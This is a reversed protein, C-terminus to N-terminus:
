DNQEGLKEVYEVAGRTILANLLLPISVGMFVLILSTIPTLLLFIPSISIVVLLLTILYYKGSLLFSLKFVQIFKLRPFVRVVVLSYMTMAIWIALLGFSVYYGILNFISLEETINKYYNMNMYGLFAVTLIILELIIKRGIAEKFYRFYDKFLKPNRKNTYDNFMNYGASIAPYITIVGLSFFIMMVNLVILRIIWDAVENIRSNVLKEFM